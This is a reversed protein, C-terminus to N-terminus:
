RILNGTLELLREIKKTLKIADPQNSPRKGELMEAIVKNSNSIGELYGEIKEKYEPKM